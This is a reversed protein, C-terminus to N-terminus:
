FPRILNFTFTYKSYENSEINSNNNTYDVGAQFLFKPSYIYTNMLGFKYETDKRKVLYSTDEDDYNTYKYSVLPVISINPKLMYTTSLKFNISKKDISTLVSQEKKEQSYVTVVSPILNNLYKYKLAYNLELYNSDQNSNTQNNKIQYKIHGSSNLKKNIPFKFKPFLGYSKLNSKDDIWLADTFLAYDISLKNSYLENLSFTYSALKIDKTSNRSKNMSKSFLMIDNKLIRTDSQKYKHNLIVVEQHAWDSDKTTTNNMDIYTNFAPIYVNNFIEDDAKNNVNSDYNIGFLLVGNFFYKQTHKDILILFKAIFPKINEPTKPNKQLATFIPKAENFAKSAIHSRGLEFNTRINDPDEFLVREYAIIADHYNKLEFATRGLYFNINKDNLNTQFLENLLENSKKYEKQKYFNLAKTYKDLVKEKNTKSQTTPLFSETTKKRKIIFLEFKGDKFNSTYKKGVMRKDFEEICTYTKCDQINIIKQTKDVKNWEIYEANLFTSFGFITILFLRYM